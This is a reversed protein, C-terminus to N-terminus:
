LLIDKVESVLVSILVSPVYRLTKEEWRPTHHALRPFFVSLAAALSLSFSLLVAPTHYSYQSVCVCVCVCLSLSLSQSQSQVDSYSHHHRHPEKTQNITYQVCLDTENQELVPLTLRPKGLVVRGKVVLLLPFEFILHMPENRCSIGLKCVKELYAASSANRKLTNFVFRKTHTHTHTGSFRTILQSFLHRQPPTVLTVSQNEIDTTQTHTHTYTDANKKTKTYLEARVLENVPPISSEEEGDAAVHRVVFQHRELCNVEKDLNEVLVELIDTLEIEDKVEVLHVQYEILKDNATLKLLRAFLHTRQRRVVCVCVCVCVCVVRAWRVHISTETGQRHRRCRAYTCVHIHM